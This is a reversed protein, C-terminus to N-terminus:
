NCVKRALEKLQVTMRRALCQLQSWSLYDWPTFEKADQARKVFGQFESSYQITHCSPCAPLNDYESIYKSCKDARLIIKDEVFAIPKWGVPRVEHQHYPYTSWISGASWVVKSGPCPVRKSVAISPLSQNGSLIQSSIPNPSPTSAHLDSFAQIIGDTISPSRDERAPEAPSQTVSHTPLPLGLRKATSICAAHMRHKFFTSPNGTTTLILIKTCIDCQILHRGSAEEITTWLNPGTDTVRIAIPNTIPSNAIPM